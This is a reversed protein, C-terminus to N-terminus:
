ADVFSRGVEGLYAGVADQLLVDLKQRAVVDLAEICRAAVDLGVVVDEYPHRGEDTQDANM